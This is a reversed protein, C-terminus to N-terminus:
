KLNWAYYGFRMSFIRGIDNSRCRHLYTLSLNYLVLLVVALEM